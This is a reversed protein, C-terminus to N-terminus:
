GVMGAIGAILIFIAVLMLGEFWTAQGDLAIVMAIALTAIVAILGLPTFVMAMFNGMGYSVFVLIPIVLLAIQVSSGMAIQFSLEIRGRWAMLIASSHEAANGVLAIIVVGMFFDSLGAEEMIHALEGILLEAIGVVSIMTVALMLVATSAPWTALHPESKRVKEIPAESHGDFYKKHTRMSFLMYFAYVALLVAAVFLSMTTIDSHYEGIHDFGYEAYFYLSPLMVAVVSVTLMSLTAAATIRSYKMVPYKYGGAIFSLGLVLLVNIIISGVLSARAVDIFGRNIAVIAIILETANGFTALLFASLGPGSRIALEETARGMLLALPMIAAAAGIFIIVPNAGLVKGAIAIPAGMLLILAGKEIRSLPLRTKFLGTEPAGGTVSEVRPEAYPQEERGVKIDNAEREDETEAVSPADEGDEAM